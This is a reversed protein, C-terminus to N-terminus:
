LSMGQGIYERSMADEVDFFWKNGSISYMHVSKNDGINLSSYVAFSVERSVSKGSNFQLAVIYKTDKFIWGHQQTTKGIIKCNFWEDKM